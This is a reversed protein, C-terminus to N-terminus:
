VGEKKLIHVSCAPLKVILKNADETVYCNGFVTEYGNTEATIKADYEKNGANVIVIVSETKANRSFAYVNNEDDCLETHYDGEYLAPTNKRIAILKKYWDFLKLNQKSKDWQMCLRCGPDNDGTLGVEDGYFIAPCGPITMQLAIALYYRKLNDGTERLYRTTDHSDLPNYMRLNTDWPYLSLMKNILHDFESPKFENKALWGVMADRFLYNMACDLRNGNVLKGADGWTEGLLLINSNLEKLRKSFKEWFATPVEDAVDLRWGDIGFEKIWYEGVKIFYEATEPNELNIKPMWKYHGVCDYNKDELSVPYSQIYFWDKYKSKEGNKVVDQFPPWYYGSHNFVGDLLIKMGRKHVEDVLKRLDDKNGFSPNIEYYDITDYKHNSPASFIPTTYICTAGLDKIYDLGDIIGQIDGGMFNERDPESGWAVADKPTLEDNGNKFREPFIQYYIQHTAWKPAIYGDIKNPWLFEYFNKNFEPENETFGKAGLSMVKEGDDFVFYYRVYAALEKTEIINSYYDTYGDKLINKMKVRRLKSADCEYRFWWVITIEKMDNGATSLSISLKERDLPYIYELTPRHIIAALNM